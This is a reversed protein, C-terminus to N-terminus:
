LEESTETHVTDAVEFFRSEENWMVAMANVKLWSM